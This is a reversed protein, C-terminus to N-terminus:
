QRKRKFHKTEVDLLYVDRYKNIWDDDFTGITEFFPGTSTGDARVVVSEDREKVRTHIVLEWLCWCDGVATIRWEKPEGEALFTTRSSFLASLTSDDNVVMPKPQDNGSKLSFVVTEIPEGGQAPVQLLAGRPLDLRKKVRLEIGTILAPLRRNGTLTLLYSGAWGQYEAKISGNFFLRRGNMAALMPTWKEPSSWRTNEIQAKQTATLPNPFVWTFGADDSSAEKVRAILSPGEGLERDKANEAGKQARGEQFPAIIVAVALLALGVGVSMLVQFKRESFWPKSESSQGATSSASKQQPRSDGRGSRNRRQRKKATM